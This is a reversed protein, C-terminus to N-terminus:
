STDDPWAADLRALIRDLSDPGEELYTMMAQFFVEDGIPPPMLDSADFRFTDLSLAAHLAEAQRRQFPPYNEPDFHPNSSLFQGTGVMEVGYDPSLLFRVVERVEPRDSFATIMDGGGIAAPDGRVSPFPFVDTTRGVSGSPLFAAAFSAQLHLWCGPPHDLLPSPADFVSTASAGEPGGLVSGERFVVEDLRRFADRVAPSDFPMRHYTWDDYAESGAGALVLNEIWDTGPWGSVEGSEWGFCWPTHGSSRLDDGLATLEDWSTPIEYGAARLEPVPYWVLSKLGLQTFAGFLQGDGAPWSGHPAITGLSVLYPSQDSRLQDADLFRGMDVLHGQRALDAAAGPLSFALDPPDGEAERATIWSELEPFDVFAVEVGTRSTFADLERRFAKLSEPDQHAGWLMTVETGTLPPGPTKREVPTISEAMLDNSFADPLPPCSTTGLYRGCEASTLARTAHPQAARVLQALPLDYVGRLGLPGAVVATPGDAVPYEVGAEQMAWHLAEVTEGPVAEERSASLNVAHLALLLSLDPDSELNSLAAGALGAVRAEDRLREAERTRNAAVTTLGAAVVVAVTLVAVLARLRRVSRRELEREREARARDEDLQRDRDRASAALYEEEDRSLALETSAEWARLEELRRGRLLMGPDRGSAEWDTAAGSLRRHQRLDDRAGDIWIRLRDWSRLLAEHAVEVTPGRTAPDRDFSLLRHRGFTDIVREMARRDVDVSLLEARPVLRRTDSPGDGSIVLRLFLQRAAEREPEGMAEYLEEARRALAGSVGGIERYAELTLARGRRREFLETLAYQLLPLAGPRDSVDAVMEAVLALEPVVGVRAAPGGIARELEEATLPTVTELRTRMLEALGPLSLPRDYFDARLTVVVRLRSGRDQTAAVLSQLFQDRTHEEEVMTFVEELQDVVLVLESGDDPLLRDVLQVLGRESRELLDLMGQPPDVAIRQLAAELEEMPHGGPLMEVYFWRDSGPLAGARLTPILGARVVSSKGSGSPGVVALFRSGDVSESMRAVLRDVLADRGFFDDADAEAFAHLGKYPNRQDTEEDVTRPRPVPLDLADRLAVAVEGADRYRSDPDDATARSIVDAVRADGHRGNVVDQVVMGLGYIDSAPTVEEGRLQEPSYYGLSAPPVVERWDTLDEAIGFDSLYANGDDDLLVNAPKVDRHVTHGRHAASLAAALQDVVRVAHEPELSGRALAEELNGGRMWRMVLYAGSGDRWYDYLPVVHPHEIRAVTQAEQEFRRVFSPDDALRPHIQKIGVERGLEPDLSRWVVGFAGEGVRELLRYGRLPKGTLQLTPDQQLIRRHLDQLEPSPDIGLEDALLEQARRYGELADAQRGSRYRALVLHNWLRERLPHEAVLRELDPLVEAHEGVALRAALLDEVANTRLEQLRAIEGVLSPAEALDSLPSGRWLELAEDITAAAERPETSLQRRSRRLLQEFRLVDLEDPEAHLVYGPTRGEIRDPGLAARLHSVYSQITNRAAHPPEEDWVREILEEMTVIRNAALLLHALVLRQRPGGLTVPRGGDTVELPGLLRFELHGAIADTRLPAQGTPSPRVVALLDIPRSIGKLRVSGRDEFHVDEVAGSLHVLESTVLVEGPRARACLRAALNLARGRYGEGLPVAEGADIGIGVGLPVDATEDSALATQLDLAARIAERASDFVALIEDGRVEVITGARSEIGRTAVTVFREALAAAAEDGQSDSFRTYGRLDAILFTRIVSAPQNARSPERPGPPSEM